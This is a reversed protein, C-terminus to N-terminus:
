NSTCMSSPSSAMSLRTRRMNSLTTQLQRIKLIDAKTRKSEPKYKLARIQKELNQYADTFVKDIKKELKKSQQVRPNFKKSLSMSKIDGAFMREALVAAADPTIGFLKGIARMIRNILIQLKSPNKREIKAGELGIATVLIEKQMEFETLGENAYEARVMEALDPRSAEVQKSDLM